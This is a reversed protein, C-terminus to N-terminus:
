VSDAEKGHNIKPVDSKPSYPNQLSPWTDSSQWSADHQGEWNKDVGPEGKMTFDGFQKPIYPNQLSPWIDNGGVNGWSKMRAENGHNTYNMDDSGVMPAGDGWNGSGDSSPSYGHAAKKAMDPHDGGVSIHPKGSVNWVGSELNTEVLNVLWEAAEEILNLEADAEDNLVAALENLYSASENQLATDGRRKATNWIGEISEYLDAFVRKELAFKQDIVPYFQEVVKQFVGYADEDESVAPGSALHMIQSVKESYSKHAKRLIGEAMFACVQDDYNKEGVIQLTEGIMTALESQTLYILNPWASVVNELVEELGQEDSFANQRKLDAMAKCFEQTEHLKLVSERLVKVEHNLTKWNFSLIKGENRIKSAPVQVGTVNNKDDSVVQSESLAPGLNVYDVYELANAAVTYTELAKSNKGMEKEVIKRSEALRKVRSINNRTRENKIKNNSNNDSWGYSQLYDNFLSEAKKSEDVLLADIMESIVNRVKEKRSSEDVILEEINSFSVKEENLEYVAHVFSNDRTEFVVTSENFCHLNLHDKGIAKALVDEAEKLEKEASTASNSVMVDFADQKILKRRM